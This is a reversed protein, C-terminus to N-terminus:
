QSAVPSTHATSAEATTEVIPAAGSTPAMPAPSAPTAQYTANTGICKKEIAVKELATYEGKLQAYQAEQAKTGGLFFLAPWFLIVGATTIATDNSSAQDLRGSLGILQGQVRQSEAIVQQCDYNAYQLPSVPNAVIDKSSIACGLSTMTVVLAGCVAKKM